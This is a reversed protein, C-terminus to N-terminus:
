KPFKAIADVAKARDSRYRAADMFTVIDVGNENANLWDQLAKAHVPDVTKGDPKWYAHITKSDDSELIENGDPKSPSDAKM